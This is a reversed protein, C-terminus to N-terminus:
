HSRKFAFNGDIFIPYSNNHKDYGTVKLDKSGFMFDIHITSYNLHYHDWENLDTSSCGDICSPFGRGIALHCSANEDYLTNFFLFGSQAIPSKEQVFAVEGLYSAGEDSAILDELLSLNKNAFYRVIKGSKFEFGFGEIIAGGLELPKTAFVIGDVRYKDPSTSVEETPINAVFSITNNNGHSFRANPHLGITLNTGLANEFHLRDLKLSDITHAYSSIDNLHKKWNEIPDENLRIRCIDYVVDFMKNLAIEPLENPYLTQAWLPNPYSAICWAINDKAIYSRIYNRLDNTFIQLASSASNSVDKFLYPYASKILLSCAGQELYSVRSDRQWDKVAKIADPKVNLCREKEVYTDTYFVIVDKAKRSFAVECCAQVLPYADVPAEIILYQGSQVNVGMEILLRAYKMLRDDIMTNVQM